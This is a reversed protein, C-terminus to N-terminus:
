QEIRNSKVDMKTNQDGRYVRTGRNRKGTWHGVNRVMPYIALSVVTRHFKGILRISMRKDCAERWKMM